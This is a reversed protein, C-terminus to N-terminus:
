ISTDTPPKKRTTFIMKLVTITLIVDVLAGLIEFTPDQRKEFMYLIYSIGLYSFFTAILRPPIDKVAGRKLEFHLFIFSATAACYIFDFVWYFRAVLDAVWAFVEAVM